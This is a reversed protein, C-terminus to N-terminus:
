TNIKKDLLKNKDASGKSSGFYYVTLSIAMGTIEGILLHVIESNHIENNLVHYVMYITLFLITGGVIYMFWDRGFVKALEVERTRASGRDEVELRYQDLEMQKMELLQVKQEPTLKPDKDIMDGARNLLEIGTLDGATNLLTGAIDPATKKIGQWLKGEWCSKKQNKNAM